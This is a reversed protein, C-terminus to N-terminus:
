SSSLGERDRIEDRIALALSRAIGEVDINSNKALVSVCEVIEVWTSESADPLEHLTRRLREMAEPPELSAVGAAAAKRLLKAHLVFGPLEWAIGDTVSERKKESKKLQEWRSEADSASSVTVDGFVHPHRQVLKHHVADAISSLTFSEEESGLEAHFVIQFLLDGLEEEAERRALAVDGDGEVARAYRTVADIVEYTEELLHRLLSDHTQERDWACQVRLLKMLDVLDAVAVGAHRSAPVYLSTLHDADDVRHLDRVPMWRISQDSMGAHRVVCVTEVGDLRDAVLALIEPSYTQLILLAGPCRMPGEGAVADCITLTVAMPDVGLASCVADVTSVAPVVEVELDARELLLEVTREAVLPSGPVAYVVPSTAALRALDDVIRHYLDEFSTATEYWEDYTPIEAFEAAAPHRGTRLRAVPADRLLRETVRTLYREDGPGLGVVTVRPRTM